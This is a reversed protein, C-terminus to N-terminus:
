ERRSASTKEARWAEIDEEFWGVMRPGFRRKAPLLGEREWRSLTAESLTLRRALERPRVIKSRVMGPM